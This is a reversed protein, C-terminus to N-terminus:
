TSFQDIDQLSVPLTHCRRMHVHVKSVARVFLSFATSLLFAAAARHPSPPPSLNTGSPLGPRWLRLMETIGAAFQSYLPDTFINEIRGQM